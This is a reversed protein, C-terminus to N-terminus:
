VLIITGLKLPSRTGGKRNVSSWAISKNEGLPMGRYLLAASPSSCVEEFTGVRVLELIIDLVRDISAWVRSVMWPKVSKSSCCM